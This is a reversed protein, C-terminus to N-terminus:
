RCDYREFRVTHKAYQFGGLLEMPCQSVLMRLTPSPHANLPEWVSDRIWVFRSGELPANGNSASYFQKASKEDHNFAFWHASHGVYVDADNSPKSLVQKLHNTYTPFYFGWSKYGVFAYQPLTLLAILLVLYKTAQRLAMWACLLALMFVPYAHIAYQQNGHQNIVSGVIIALLGWWSFRWLMEARNQKWVLVGYTLVFLLLDPIHRYFKAFVFHTILYFRDQIASGKAGHVADQLSVLHAGHLMLYYGVGLTCAAVIGFGHKKYAKPMNFNGFTIWLAMIYLGYIGGAPHTELALFAGILAWFWRHYTACLVAFAGLAFTLAEPRIKVANSVFTDLLLCAIAFLVADKSDVGLRRAIQAWCIVGLFVLATSLARHTLRGWGFFEAWFGYVFAHTKGFYAVVGNGNGFIRDFEFGDKLYFYDFSLTWADDVGHQGYVVIMTAYLAILAVILSSRLFSFGALYM